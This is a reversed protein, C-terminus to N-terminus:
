PEQRVTVGDSVTAEAVAMLTDELWESNETPAQPTYPPPPPSRPTNTSPYKIGDILFGRLPNLICFLFTM